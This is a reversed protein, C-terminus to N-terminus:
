VSASARRRRIPLFLFVAIVLYGGVAVLPFFIGAAILVVYALLSPSLRRTLLALDQQEAEPSILEARLAYRWLASLLGACVLLSAFPRTAAVEVGGLVRVGDVESGQLEASDDLFGIVDYLGHARVVALVERALGSAAVLLLDGGSM